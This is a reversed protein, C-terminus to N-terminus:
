LASYIMLLNGRPQPTHLVCRVPHMNIRATDVTPLDKEREFLLEIYFALGLEVTLVVLALREGLRWHGLRVDQHNTVDRDSGVKLQM